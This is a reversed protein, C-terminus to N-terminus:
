NGQRRVITVAGAGDYKAYPKGASMRDCSQLATENPFVLSDLTTLYRGKTAVNNYDGIRVVTPNTSTTYIYASPDHANISDDSLSVWSGPTQEIWMQEDDLSSIASVRWCAGTSNMAGITFIEYPVVQGRPNSFTAFMASGDGNKAGLDVRYRAFYQGYVDGNAFAQSTLAALSVLAALLLKSTRM